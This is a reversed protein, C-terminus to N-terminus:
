KKSKAYRKAMEDLILREASILDMGANMGGDQNIISAIERVIGNTKLTGTKRWALIESYAELLIERPFSEATAVAEQYNNM